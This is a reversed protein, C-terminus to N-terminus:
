AKPPTFFTSNFQYKYSYLYFSNWGTVNSQHLHLCDIKITQAIFYNVVYHSSLLPLTKEHNGHDSRRHAAAERGIGYHLQLFSFFDVDGQPDNQHELFHRLLNPVKALEIMNSGPVISGSIFLCLLLLLISRKM